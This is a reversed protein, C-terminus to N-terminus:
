HRGDLEGVGAEGHEGLDGVDPVDQELHPQEGVLLRDLFGVVVEAEALPVGLRVDLVQVQEQRHDALLVRRGAQSLELLHHSELDDLEARGIGLAEESGGVRLRHFEGAVLHQAPPGRWTVLQDLATVAGVAVLGLFCLTAM